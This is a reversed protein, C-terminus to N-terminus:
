DARAISIRQKEGGSLTNGGEGVMTAYGEPLASIFNHCRAAKAAVVVDDHDANQRGVRINNEITDNLLYVDQFVVAIHETLGTHVGGVLLLVVFTVFFLSVPFHTSRVKYQQESQTM